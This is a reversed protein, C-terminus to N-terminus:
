MGGRKKMEDVFSHALEKGLDNAEEVLDRTMKRETDNILADLEVDSFPLAAEANLRYQGMLDAIRTQTSSPPSGTMMRLETATLDKLHPAKPDINDRKDVGNAKQAEVRAECAEHLRQMRPDDPFKIDVM